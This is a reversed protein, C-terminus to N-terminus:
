LAAHILLSLCYMMLILVTLVTIATSSPHSSLELTPRFLPNHAVCMGEESIFSGNEREQPLLHDTCTDALSSLTFPLVLRM